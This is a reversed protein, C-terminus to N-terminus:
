EYIKKFFLYVFISTMYISFFLYINSFIICSILTIWFNLCYPCSILKTFFNSHKLALFDLYKIEPNIKKYEFYKNIKFLSGMNFLKCYEIFAETHFWILLIFNIFFIQNFFPILLNVDM